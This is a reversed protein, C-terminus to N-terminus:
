CQMTDGAFVSSSDLTGVEVLFLKQLASYLMFSAESFGRGNNEAMRLMDGYSLQLTPYMAAASIIRDNQEAGLYAAIYVHDLERGDVGIFVPELRYGEHPYGSVWIEEFAESVERKVYFKPIEVMVNGSSGDLSFGSEGEYIIKRNGDPSVSINCRRIGCWPYADDFDNRSSYLWQGAISCNFRLGQAAGLRKGVALGSATDFRVGYEQQIDIKPEAATESYGVTVKGCLEGGISLLMGASAKPAIWDLKEAHTGNWLQWEERDYLIYQGETLDSIEFTYMEADSRGVPLRGYGIIIKDNDIAANEITDDWYMVRASVAEQPIGVTDYSPSSFRVTSLSLYNQGHDVLQINGAADRFQWVACNFNGTLFLDKMESHVPFWATTRYNADDILQEKARNIKGSARVAPALNEACGSFCVTMGRTYRVAPEIRLTMQVMDASLALTKRQVNLENEALPQLLAAQRYVEEAHNQQGNALYSDGLLICADLDDSVSQCYRRLQRIAGTWDGAAYCKKGAQLLDAASVPKDANDMVALLAIGFLLVGIVALEILAKKKKMRWEVKEANKELRVSGPM